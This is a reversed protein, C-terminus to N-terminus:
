VKKDIPLNYNLHYELIELKKKVEPHLALESFNKDFFEHVRITALCTYKKVGEIIIKDKLDQNNSIEMRQNTKLSELEDLSM